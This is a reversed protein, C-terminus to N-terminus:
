SATESIDLGFRGASRTASVGTGLKGGRRPRTWVDFAAAQEVLSSNRVM